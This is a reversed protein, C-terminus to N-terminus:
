DFSGFFVHQFFGMGVKLVQLSNCIRILSIVHELLVSLTFFSKRNYVIYLLSLDFKAIEFNSTLILELNKLFIDPGASKFILDSEFDYNLVLSKISECTVFCPLLSPRSKVFNCSLPLTFVAAPRSDVPVVFEFYNLNPFCRAIIAPLHDANRQQWSKIILSRITPLSVVPTTDKFSELALYKLNSFFKLREIEVM